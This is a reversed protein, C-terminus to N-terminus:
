GGFKEETEGSPAADALIARALKVAETKSLRVGLKGAGHPYMAWNGNREGIVVCSCRQGDEVLRGDLVVRSRENDRQM